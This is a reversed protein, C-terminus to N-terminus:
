ILLPKFPGVFWTFRCFLIFQNVASVAARLTVDAIAGSLSSHRSVSCNGCCRRWCCRCQQQGEPACSACSVPVSSCQWRRGTGSSAAHSHWRSAHEGAAKVAAESVGLYWRCLDDIGSSDSNDGDSDDSIEHSVKDVPPMLGPFAPPLFADTYAYTFLVALLHPTLCLYSPLVLLLPGPAISTGDSDSGGSAPRAAAAAAADAAELLTRFLPVRAALIARHGTVAVCARCQQVINDGNVPSPAFTVPPCVISVDAGSPGLTSHGLLSQQPPPFEPMSLVSCAGSSADFTAISRYRRCLAQLTSHGVGCSDPAVSALAAAGDACAEALLNWQGGFWAPGPGDSAHPSPESPLIDKCAPQAQQAPLAPPPQQATLASDDFAPGSSNVAMRSYLTGLRRYRSELAQLGGTGTRLEASLLPVDQSRIRGSARIAGLIARNLEEPAAGTRVLEDIAQERYYYLSPLLSGRDASLTAVPLTQAQEERSTFAPPWPSWHRRLLVTKDDVAAPSAASSAAASSSLHKSGVGIAESSSADDEQAADLTVFHMSQTPDRYTLIIGLYGNRTPHGRLSQVYQGAGRRGDIMSLTRLPEGTTASHLRIVSEESAGSAIAAGGDM